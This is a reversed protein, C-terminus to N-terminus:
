PYERVLNSVYNLKTVRNTGNFVVPLPFSGYHKVGVVDGQAKSCPYNTDPDCKDYYYDGFENVCASRTPGCYWPLIIGGQFTCTCPNEEPTLILDGFTLTYFGSTGYWDNILTRLTGMKKEDYIGRYIKSFFVVFSESSDMDEDKIDVSFLVMPINYQKAWLYFDVMTQIVHIKFNFLFILVALVVSLAILFPIILGGLLGKKKKKM